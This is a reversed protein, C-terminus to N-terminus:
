CRRASELTARLTLGARMAGAHARRRCRPHGSHERCGACACAAGPTSHTCPPSDGSMMVSSWIRSISRFCSIGCSPAKQSRMHDSGSSMSSQDTLGRPAPQSNPELDGGKEMRRGGGGGKEGRRGGEGGKQVRRRGEGKKEGKRGETCGAPFTRTHMRWEHM